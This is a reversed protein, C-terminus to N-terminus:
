VGAAREAALTPSGPWRRLAQEVQEKCPVRRAHTSDATMGLEGSLTPKHGMVQQRILTDVNADQLLIAFTGGRSRVPRTRRGSRPRSDSFDHLRCLRGLSEDSRATGVDAGGGVIGSPPELVALNASESKEQEVLSGRRIQVTSLTQAFTANQPV